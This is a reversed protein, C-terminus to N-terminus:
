KTSDPKMSNNMGPANGNHNMNNMMKMMEEPSMFNWHDVMKMNEVRIVDVSKSDINFGAPMGWVPNKTTGTMHVLAFIYEGNAADAIIEFKLNDIDNHVNALSNIIDEGKMDSGNAGGGHDIADTSIYQRLTAIDGTEIAKQVRRNAELMAKQKDTTTDFSNFHNRSTGNNTAFVTLIALLGLFSLTKMHKKNQILTFFSLTKIFSPTRIKIITLQFKKSYNSFYFCDKLFDLLHLFLM